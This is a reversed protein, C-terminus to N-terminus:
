PAPPKAPPSELKKQFAELNAKTRENKTEAMMKQLAANYDGIIDLLKAAQKVTAGANKPLAAKGPKELAEKLEPDAKILMNRQNSIFYYLESFCYERFIEPNEKSQGCKMLTKVFAATETDSFELPKLDGLRVYRWAGPLTPDAIQKLADMVSEDKGPGNKYLKIFIIGMGMVADCSDDKHSKDTNPMERIFALFENKKLSRLYEQAQKQRENEPKSQDESIKRLRELVAKGNGDAGYGQISLGALVLALLIPKKM